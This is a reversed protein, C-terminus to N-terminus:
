IKGIIKFFFIWKRKLAFDAIKISIRKKYVANQIADFFIPEKIENLIERKIVRYKDNRNFQSKAVTIFGREVRRYYQQQFDYKTLDIVSALHKAIQIQGNWHLPKKEKTMSTPNFRYYYLSKDMIYMSDTHMICPIICAGDEGMSISDPVMMQYKKYLSSKIAKAWVTPLFFRGQENQILNPFIEKELRERNYKGATANVKVDTIKKTSTQHYGCCVVDYDGKCIIENFEEIYSIDIYDDGDVCCIYAGSAIEAGAKRASVLGGNQKHIVIIRNDKKAYEDCIRPSSDKSGDDVLIIEINTYTQNIISDVCQNIYKEVGYVPVIISYKLNM